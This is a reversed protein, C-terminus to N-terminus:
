LTKLFKKLSMTNHAQKWTHQKVHPNVFSRGDIAIGDHILKPKDMRKTRKRQRNLRPGKTAKQSNRLKRKSNDGSAAYGAYRLKKAEKIKRREMKRKMARSSKARKGM